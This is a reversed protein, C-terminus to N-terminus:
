AVGSRRRAPAFGGGGGANASAAGCCWLDLDETHRVYHHAAMAAAGIVVADIRHRALVFSIEEAADVIGASGSM